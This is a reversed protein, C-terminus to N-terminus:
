WTIPPTEAPSAFPGASLGGLLGNDELLGFSFVVVGQAGQARAYDINRLAEAGTADPDSARGLAHIGLYIHRGAAHALHDDALVAFSPNSDIRLYDMPVLADVIGEAIWAHSDQYYDRRGSSGAVALDNNHWVATTLKVGPHSRVLGYAGRVLETLQERQWDAFSLSPDSGSALLFNQESVPDHSFTAGYYRIYDLHLGDVAYHSILDDMVALLYDRAAPIGPSLCLYGSDGVKQRRGNVDVMLWEPHDLLVHRPTTEPPPSGGSWAPVTNIWAHLEMGQTKAEELAVALPDWGPDEGLTGTLESAWPELNSHYFADARGRVQFFVANVGAQAATQIIRRVDAESKYRWRTVWVGRLEKPLGRTV